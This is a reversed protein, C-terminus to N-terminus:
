YSRAATWNGTYYREDTQQDKTLREVHGDIFLANSTNMHRLYEIDHGPYETLQGRNSAISSAFTDGNTGGDLCAEWADQAVITQTPFRAKAMNQGIANDWAGAYKQLLAVNTTSGFFRERDADSLGSNIDGWGNYGYATYQNPYGSSDNKQINSPCTFTDKTLGAAVAYYIGWYANPDNANIIQTPRAPDMWTTNNKFPPTYNNNENLYLRFAQGINRLNAACKAANAHERALSLMPMLLAVLLCIVGTAVLVELLTFGPRSRSARSSAPRRDAFDLRNPPVVVGNM